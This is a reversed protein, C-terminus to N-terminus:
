ILNILKISKKLKKIISKNKLNDYESLHKKTIYKTNEM